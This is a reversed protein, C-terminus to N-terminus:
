LCQGVVEEARAQLVSDGDGADVSIGVVAWKKVWLVRVDSYPRQLLPVRLLSHGAVCPAGRMSVGGTLSRRKQLADVSRCQRVVVEAKVLAVLV